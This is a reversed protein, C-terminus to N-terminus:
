QEATDLLSALVGGGGGGAANIECDPRVALAGGLGNTNCSLRLFFSFDFGLSFHNEPM